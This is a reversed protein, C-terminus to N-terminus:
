IDGQPSTLAPDNLRYLLLTPLPLYSRTLTEPYLQFPKM